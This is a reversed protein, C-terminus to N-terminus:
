TRDKAARDGSPDLRRLEEIRALRTRADDRIRLTVAAVLAEVQATAVVRSGFPSASADPATLVAEALDAIPSRWTDTLLCIRAGARRAATAFRMLSDQYRRYDFMVFLDRPGTDVLADYDFGVEQRVLTVGPRIQGLHLALRQALTQSYRGGLPKVSLKRDALLDAIADFEATVAQAAATRLADAQMLLTRRYVHDGEAGVDRDGLNQLPSGMQREVDAVVAAQFDAFRPFGIRALFRLVTPASVSARAALSGVTGLARAPYGELLASAVKREAASVAGDRLRPILDNAAPMYRNNSM